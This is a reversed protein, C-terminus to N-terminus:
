RGLPKELRDVFAQDFVKFLADADLGSADVKILHADHMLLQLEHRNDGAKKLIARHAGYKVIEGGDAQVLAPSNFLMSMMGVMPSNATVDVQMSDEGRVYRRTVSSGIAALGAALANDADNAPQDEITWGEPKPLAELIAVRQKKQVDVIAAQLAAIAAGPKEAEMAKKALEIAEAFTPPKKPGVREQGPAAVFAILLAFTFALPIRM